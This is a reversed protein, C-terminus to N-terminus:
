SCIAARTSFSTQVRNPRVCVDFSNLGLFILQKKGPNVALMQHTETQCFLFKLLVVNKSHTIIGDKNSFTFFVKKSFKKLADTEEKKKSRIVRM